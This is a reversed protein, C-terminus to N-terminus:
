QKWSVAVFNSNGFVFRRPHHLPKVNTVEGGNAVIQLEAFPNAALTLLLDFSRFKFRGGVIKNGASEEVLRTYSVREDGLEPDFSYGLFFLGSNPAFLRKGFAVEVIDPPPRLNFDALVEMNICTKLLWRELLTGNIKNKRRPNSGASDRLANFAVTGAEDVQSLTNNHTQCLINSKFESKHLTITNGNLFPFGRINLQPGQLTSETVIHERSHQLSCHGLCAAWCISVPSQPISAVLAM